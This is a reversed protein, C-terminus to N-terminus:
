TPSGAGPPDGSFILIHGLLFPSAQALVLTLAASVGLFTSGLPSRM